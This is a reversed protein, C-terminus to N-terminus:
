SKTKPREYAAPYTWTGVRVIRNILPRPSPTLCIGWFRIRGLNKCFSIIEHVAYCLLSNFNEAAFLFEPLFFITPAEKLM